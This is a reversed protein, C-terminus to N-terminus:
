YEDGGGFNWPAYTDDYLDDVTCGLADAIQRVREEDPFIRGLAYSSITKPSMGIKKALDSRNIPGNNLIFRLNSAFLTAKTVYEDNFKKAM